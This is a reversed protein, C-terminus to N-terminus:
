AADRKLRSLLECAAAPAREKAGNIFFVYVDRPGSKPAEKAVRPFEKPESGRAFTRSVKAWAELAPEPYGTVIKAESRM